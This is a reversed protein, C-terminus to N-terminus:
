GVLFVLFSRSSRTYGRNGEKPSQSKYGRDGLFIVNMQHHWRGIFLSKEFDSM